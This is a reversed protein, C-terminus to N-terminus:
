TLYTSHLLITINFQRTVFVESEYQHTSNCLIFFIIMYRTSLLSCTMQWTHAGKVLVLSAVQEMKEQLKALQLNEFAFCFQFKQQKDNFPRAGPLKNSHLNKSTRLNKYGGLNTQRRSDKSDVSNKFSTACDRTTKRARFM